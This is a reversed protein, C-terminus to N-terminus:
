KAPAFLNQLRVKDTTTKQQNFQEAFNNDCSSLIVQVGERSLELLGNILSVTPPPDQLLLITDNTVIYKEKLEKVNTPIEEGEPVFVVHKFSTVYMDLVHQQIFELVGDKVQSFIHIGSVCGSEEGINNFKYLGFPGMDVAFNKEEEAQSAAYLLKLLHTKGVGKAGTIVNIGECFEMEMKSFVSFDKVEAKVIAM